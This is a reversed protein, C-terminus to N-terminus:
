LVPSFRNKKLSVDRKWKQARQMKTWKQSAYKASKLIGATFVGKITQSIAPWKVVDALGQRIYSSLEPSNVISQSFFPEETTVNRFQDSRSLYWRHYNQIRSLLTRPLQQLMAGRVKINEEQLITGDEVYNVAPLDDIIPRYIERFDDMQRHVINYVKHPNEGLIMRFDGTYSLGAITM